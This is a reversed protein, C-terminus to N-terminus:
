SLLAMLLVALLAVGPVLELPLAACAVVDERRISTIDVIRPRVRALPTDIGRLLSFHPDSVKTPINYTKVTARMISRIRIHDNIRLKKM